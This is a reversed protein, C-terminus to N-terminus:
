NFRWGIRLGSNSASSFNSSNNKANAQVTVFGNDNIVNKNTKNIIVQGTLALQFGMYFGGKFWYDAGTLLLGQHQKSKQTYDSNYGMLFTTGNANVSSSVYDQIGYGYQVGVYPALHRNGKFFRLVGVNALISRNSSNYSGKVGTGDSNQYVTRSYNNTAFEPGAIVAWNSDLYYRVMLQNQTYTGFGTFLFGVQAESSFTGGGPKQAHTLLTTLLITAIFLIRKM